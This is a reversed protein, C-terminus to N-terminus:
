IITSPQSLSLSQCRLCIHIVSPLGSLRRDRLNEFIADFDSNESPMVIIFKFNGNGYTVEAATLDRGVSGDVKQEPEM